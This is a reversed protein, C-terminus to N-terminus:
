VPNNGDGPQAAATGAAKCASSPLHTQGPIQSQEPIGHLFIVVGLTMQILICGKVKLHTVDIAKFVNHSHLGSEELVGHLKQFSLICLLQLDKIDGERLGILNRSNTKILGFLQNGFFVVSLDTVWKIQLRLFLCQDTLIELFLIICIEYKDGM